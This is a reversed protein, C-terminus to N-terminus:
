GEPAATRRAPVCRLDCTEGVLRDKVRAEKMDCVMGGETLLVFSTRTGPIVVKQGSRKAPKIGVEPEGLTGVCHM